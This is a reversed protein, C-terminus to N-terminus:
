NSRRTRRHLRRRVRDQYLRVLDTFAPEDGAQAGSVLRSVADRDIGSGDEYAM